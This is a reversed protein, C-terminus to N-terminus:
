ESKYEPEFGLHRVFAEVEEKSNWVGTIQAEGSPIPEAIVPAYIVKDDILIALMEGVYEETVKRFKQKGLDNFEIKVSWSEGPKTPPKNIRISVIDKNSLEVRKRVYISDRGYPLQDFYISYFPECSPLATRFEIRPKDEKAFGLSGLGVVMLCLFIPLLKRM